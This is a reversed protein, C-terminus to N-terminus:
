AHDNRVRIGPVPGREVTPEVPATWWGAAPWARTHDARPPCPRLPRGYGM